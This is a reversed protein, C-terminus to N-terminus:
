LWGSKKFGRYLLLCIVVMVGVVAPYGFAWHLEPMDDFNMGYIGAIATPVAIIAAWASIKRMDMNQLLDQRATSAMLMTMLTSDFGDVMDGARLINDGVDRLYPHLPPPVLSSSERALRQSDPLLPQVARRMEINERNLRYIRNAAQSPQDSFVQQEIEEIDSQIAEGVELYQRAVVDSIAWFVSLPGTAALEPHAALRAAVIETDESRGMRMTIAYGPGVFCAVQGTEVDSTDDVWELVKLLVFLTNEGIEIKARQQRSTADELLLPELHFTEAVLDVEARTPDSLAIWAFDSPDAVSDRVVKLDGREPLDHSTVVGSDRRGGRYLGMIRIVHRRGYGRGDTADDSVTAAHRQDDEDSMTARLRIGASDEGPPCRPDVEVILPDHLDAGRGLSQTGERETGDHRAWELARDLRRLGEVGGLALRRTDLEILAQPLAAVPGPRISRQGLEGLCGQPARHLLTGAGDGEGLALRKRRHLRARERGDVLPVVAEPVLGGVRHHRMPIDDLGDHGVCEANMEILELPDDDIGCGDRHNAVSGTADLHEM